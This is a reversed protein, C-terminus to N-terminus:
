AHQEVCSQELMFAAHSTPQPLRKPLPNSPGHTHVYLSFGWLQSKRSNNHRSFRSKLVSIAHSSEQSIGSPAVRRAKSTFSVLSLCKAAERQSRYRKFVNCCTCQWWLQLWM